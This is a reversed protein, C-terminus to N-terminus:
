LLHCFPIILMVQIIRAELTSFFSLLGNYQCHEFVAHGYLLYYLIRSKVLLLNKCERAILLRILFLSRTRRTKIAGSSRNRPKKTTSKCNKALTSMNPSVSHIIQKCTQKSKISLRAYIKRTTVKTHKTDNTYLHFSPIHM